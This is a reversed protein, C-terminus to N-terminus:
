QWKKQFEEEKFGVTIQKGDSAIPRKILRGNQSMMKLIEDESLIKLKEKLNLLRYQEGSQNLFSKLPLGSKKLYGKLEEFRPPHLTIDIEEMKKNKGELLKKPRRCTDCKAYHYFRIM